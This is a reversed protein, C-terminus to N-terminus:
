RTTEMALFRVRTAAARRAERERAESQAAALPEVVAAMLAPRRAPDQLAADLAAALEAARADRGALYAHGVTGDALRVACRTVTMEGLNFPAGDGGARGRVMVLGTEPGRLRTHPPLAPADALRAEIAVANSKALVGMWRQRETNDAM